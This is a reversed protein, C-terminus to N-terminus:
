QVKVAVDQGLKLKAGHVQGFSAAAFAREEFSAFVTEVDQGLENHVMEHLLSWHMPPANFYLQELTQVFEAPAIDPYNGLTQGIKMVAGRLYGMSDFLRVATRWRTEALSKEREDASSFWGRVWHFLYAAAIKAQLTGLLGIRRMRGLPVPRFSAASTPSLADGSIAHDADDGPLANILQSISPM